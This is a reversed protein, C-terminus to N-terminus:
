ENGEKSLIRDLFRTTRGSNNPYIRAYDQLFVIAEALQRDLDACLKALRRSREEWGEDFTSM